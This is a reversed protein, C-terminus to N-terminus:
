GECDGRGDGNGIRRLREREEIAVARRLVRERRDDIAFEFRYPCSEDLVVRDVDLDLVLPYTRCGVPRMAYVTCRGDELFVCAGARNVLEHDGTSTLRAFGAFGAAGLRGCDDDTLTM